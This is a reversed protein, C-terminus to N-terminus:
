LYRNAQLIPKRRANKKPLISGGCALGPAISLVATFCHDFVSLISAVPHLGAAASTIKYNYFLGARAPCDPALPATLEEFVANPLIIEHFLLQLLDLKGIRYLTSIATTDSVVIM